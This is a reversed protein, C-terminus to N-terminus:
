WQSTYTLYTPHTPYTSYTPYTPYTSYTSYTSYTQYTQYTPVALSDDPPVRHCECMVRRDSPLARVIQKDPQM